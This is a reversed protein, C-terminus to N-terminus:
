STSWQKNKYVNGNKSCCPHLYNQESAIDGAIADEGNVSGAEEGEGLPLSTSERPVFDAGFTTWFGLGFCLLEM